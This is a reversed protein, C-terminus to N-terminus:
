FTVSLGASITRVTSYYSANSAGYSENILSTRPDLGRRASWLWVNTCNMYVRLREIQAKRTLQSPLTYGFSLNQLNLYSGNTLFRSSLGNADTDGFQLRPIDSGQNATSWANLIDKHFNYGRASGSSSTPCGMFTQYDSDLVKGGLQFAFDATFDFGYFKLSTNFGGYLKPIMCGVVYDDAASYDTTLVRGEKVPNGESDKKVVPEGDVKVVNGSADKEYAYKTAYWMSSGAKSADYAKDSTLNWTKETYIGAYEPMYFSYMSQGEALFMNGSAFGKYGEYTTTTKREEPLMSIKNKYHTMNVGVNWTFNKTRFIDGDLAVEVGNNKMDGINAYYSTYGFSSPLPFSFLMDSTKRWFYEISGNLRSKFLEFEIGANFNGNKEWTIDKNGMALPVAAPHGGSNVIDYTNIYRYNGINDNGQEGYSAKVKLMNIWSVDKLFNEKNMLWAGGVSFFNGWRNDPHFRSSADRRFSASGFYKQDWNYQARGFFGENNYDTTYSNMSGNVVAGALEYNTPDFMNSKGGYLYYYKNRYTEHGVMVDVDNKGYVHGWSLLQQFSYTFTRSHYKGLQGNSSAYGGYYPNTLSTRRTEDLTISNTSTFKFDKAFRIEGFGSATAANGEFDNKDLCAQQLANSNGLYPREIGMYSGNKGGWDYMTLGNADRMIRGDADRLYVPYIPAIQSAIAFINASSNSEGDEDMQSGNYHTYSMNGGVRLWDKAQLEGKLRGNFSEYGSNQTIGNNDLYGFSVYTNSKDTANSINLNYEQRFANSYAEDMWDDNVMMYDQGKYNLIRGVTANPNLRGNIGILSQGEPVNFINYGLGFSNTATMNNNTWQYAQTDGFGQKNKAYSNLAKYYTEYYEGANSITKYERRARSNSGWKADFNVQAGNGAKGKKTTIVIVGNAGRSGYLANAAADKLVTLSEIDNLNITNMDGGYPTGDLIILPSTGANISGIGRVRITPNNNTPDGSPNYLEVGAVHGTLADLANTSQLAEIKESDIVTASGTFSSKTATGYAVVMVEDMDSTNSSLAITMHPKVAVTQSDMGMYSVVVNKTGKPLNKLTFKGDIDTLAGITTGEVKVAAGVLPEGTDGDTVVGSVTQNQAFAMSATMFMCALFLFVKKGM